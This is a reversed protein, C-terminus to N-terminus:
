ELEKDIPDQRGNLRDVPSQRAMNICGAVIVVLIFYDFEPKKILWLAFDHPRELLPPPHSSSSGIICRWYDTNSASPM